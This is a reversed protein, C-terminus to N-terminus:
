GQKALDDVLRLWPPMNVGSPWLVVDGRKYDRETAKTDRVVEAHRFNFDWSERALLRSARKSDM